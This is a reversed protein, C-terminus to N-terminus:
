VYTLGEMRFHRSYKEKNFFGNNRLTAFTLSAVRSVRDNILTVNDAQAAIAKTTTVSVNAELLVNSLWATDTSCFIRLLLPLTFAISDRQQESCGRWVTGFVEAFFCAHVAEDELHDQLLRYVQPILSDSKICSIEKAIITESVFGIAFYVAAVSDESTSAILANLKQIRSPTRANREIAYIGAVEAALQNSFLAHYGEDTYIQLGAARMPEPIGVELMDHVIIELSRNVMMHELFTTYDLFYVLHHALLKEICEDPVTKFDPRTLFQLMSRPYWDKTLSSSCRLLPMSYINPKARVSSNKNWHELTLCEKFSRM